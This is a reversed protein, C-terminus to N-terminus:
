KNGKYDKIHSVGKFSLCILLFKEKILSKTSFSIQSIELVIRKRTFTLYCSWLMWFCLFALLLWCVELHSVSTVIASILSQKTDTFLCSVHTFLTYIIAINPFLFQWLVQRNITIWQCCILLIRPSSDYNGSINLFKTIM